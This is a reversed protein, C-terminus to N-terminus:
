ENGEGGASSTGAPQSAPSAGRARSGAPAAQASPSGAQGSGGLTYTVAVFRAEAPQESTARPPRILELQTVNVIRDLNAIEGLFSGVQHYGGLVHVEVPIETHFEAPRPSLPKFLTFEVGAHSGLLSITRLLWSMDSEEPILHRSHDWKRELLAYERELYPLRNATQRAKNLDRSLEVYRRELDGVESAHAKYTFPVVDTFFYAGLLFALGLAALIGKATRPDKMDLAM